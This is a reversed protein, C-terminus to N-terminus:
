NGLGCVRIGNAVPLKNSQECFDEKPRYPCGLWGKGATVGLDM